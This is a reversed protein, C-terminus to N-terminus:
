VLGGHCDSLGTLFRRQNQLDGFDTTNGASAITIYEITNLKTPTQGGAFVGRTASACAGLYDKASSVDGFDTGNGTTAITIYEITNYNGAPSSGQGGGYIGRTSNSLGALANKSNIADGFDTGNGTTQITVYNIINSTSNAYRETGCVNIGRTGNSIGSANFSVGHTLDGFDSSNGTTAITVYQIINEKVPSAGGFVIGRTSDSTGASAFVATTLDGFNSVGGQSSITVYGIESFAANAPSHYGGAWIGRTSSAFSSSNEIRAKYSDDGFDSSNGTTAIEIMDLAILLTPASGSGFVGRGRGGRQARPGSPFRMAGTSSVTTIGALVTGQQGQKGTIHNINFDSM